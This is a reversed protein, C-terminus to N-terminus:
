RTVGEAVWIEDDFISSTLADQLHNYADTWSTGNNEGMAEYDVYITKGYGTTVLTLLVIIYLKRM